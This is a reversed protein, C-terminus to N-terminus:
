YMVGGRGQEKQNELPCHGGVWHREQLGLSGGDSGHGRTEKNIHSKLDKHWNRKNELKGGKPAAPLMKKKSIRGRRWRLHLRKSGKKGKVV